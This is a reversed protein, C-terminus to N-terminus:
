PKNDEYRIKVVEEKHNLSRIELIPCGYRSYPRVIAKRGDPLVGIQVPQKDDMNHFIEVHKLGFIKM